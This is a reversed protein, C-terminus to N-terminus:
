TTLHQRRPIEIVNITRFFSFMKNTSIFLEYDFQLVVTLNKDLVDDGVPPTQVVVEDYTASSCMLVPLVPWLHPKM